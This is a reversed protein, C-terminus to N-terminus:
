YRVIIKTYLSPKKLLKDEYEATMNAAEEELEQMKKQFDAESNEKDKEIDEIQKKIKIKLKFNKEAQYEEQLRSIESMDKMKLLFEEKRYNLWIEMKRRNAALEDVKGACMDDYLLTEVRDIVEGVRDNDAPMEKVCSDKLRRTIDRVIDDPIKGVQKDDRYMAFVSSKLENGDYWGGIILYGHSGDGFIDEDTEMYKPFKGKNKPISVSSWYKVQERYEEIEKLILAFSNKHEEPSKKTILGRLEEMKKNRKRDIEKELSNFRKVFEDSTKCEQYIQTIRKEFDTGSELLGIAKDSAGFVGKFLQFKESLIEYVRRDAENQTNLLNIVVVDRKQGYRHCRGIRQEIKQPNWPLDYNIITNCFQLNLGESGSDTVLLIKYNDRFAEVIANKIEVSRSGYSKGFNRARWAKYIAKTTPDGPSGNFMLIDGKYGHNTLEDFLFKQTRVSETFIVVKNPAQEKEQTEFAQHVATRLADAKANHTISNALKIIADVEDIEHQIFENVLERTYLEQREEPENDEDLEDDLFAFFYDLSEEITEERSSEKLVVLRKKLVEFTEAVAMSSSALLKRIVSTILTRRSNPLAYIIEKKLYNNIMMYLEIEKPSLSFDVTIEKRESFLIYDSVESRLTRQIIPALQQKLEDYMENKVYRENFVAKNYFVHSDIFQVLGYLDLLTNQMPTATLMIKPIDKTLEYIAASMKMGSKHVNRMRHAEDFVCFDWPTTGLRSRQRSAFNYSAIIVVKEKRLEDRYEDLNSSDVIFSGINFKEELEIQWQRRLNSPMILLIKKMGGMLLHKIVLGAEITKGLGVEDALIAGGNKIAALSFVYAEIQHPNLDIRSQSLCSYPSQSLEQKRIEAYTGEVIGM